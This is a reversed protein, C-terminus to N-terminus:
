LVSDRLRQIDKDQNDRSGVWRVVVIDGANSTYLRGDEDYAISLIAIGDRDSIVVDQYDAKAPEHQLLSVQREVLYLRTYPLGVLATTAEVTFRLGSYCSSFRDRVLTELRRTVADLEVRKSELHTGESQWAAGVSDLDASLRDAQVQIAAKETEDLDGRLRDNAVQLAQELDMKRQMLDSLRRNLPELEQRLHEYLAQDESYRIEYQKYAEAKARWGDLERKLGPLSWDRKEAKARHEAEEKIQRIEVDSLQRNSRRAELVARAAYGLGYVAAYILPILVIGGFLPVFLKAGALVFHEAVVGWGVV